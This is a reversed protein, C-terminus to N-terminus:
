ENWIGVFTITEFGKKYGTAKNSIIIVSFIVAEKVSFYNAEFDWHWEECCLAHLTALLIFKVRPNERNESSTLHLIEKRYM